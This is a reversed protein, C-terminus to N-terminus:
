RRPIRGRASGGEKEERSGAPGRRGARASGGEEEGGRAAAAEKEEEEREREIQREWGPIWEPRPAPAALGGDARGAPRGATRGETRGDAPAGARGGAWTLAGQGEAPGGDRGARPLGRGPGGPTPDRARLPEQGGGLEWGGPRAAIGSRRAPARPWAWRPRKNHHRPPLPSPPPVCPDQSRPSGRWSTSGMPAGLSAPSSPGLGRALDLGFRFDSGTPAAEPQAARDQAGRGLTPPPPARCPLSLPGPTLAGPRVM